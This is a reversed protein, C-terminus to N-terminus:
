TGDIFFRMESGALWVGLTQTKPAGSRIATTHMWDVLPFPGGGRVRELRTRGDCSLVWRYNYAEGETRLLLGYTDGGRCLAVDVNIEAYFDRLVPATRISSLNGKDGTVALTLSHNALTIKGNWDRKTPWFEPEAFQDSLVEQGLWLSVTATPPIEQTVRPTHTFTAPFWDITASPLPTGTWTPTTTPTALDPPPTFVCASLLTLAALTAAIFVVKQRLNKM